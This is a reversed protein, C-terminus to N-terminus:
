ALSTPVDLFASSELNSGGLLAGPVDYKNGSLVNRPPHYLATSPSRSRDAYYRTIARADRM